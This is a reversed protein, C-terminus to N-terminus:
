RWRVVVWLGGGGLAGPDGGGVKSMLRGFGFPRWGPARFMTLHRGSTSVAMLDAACGVVARGGLAGGIGAHRGPQGLLSVIAFPVLVGGAAV